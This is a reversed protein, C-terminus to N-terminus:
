LIYLMKLLNLLGEDGGSIGLYINRNSCTSCFGQNYFFPIADFITYLIHRRQDLKAKEIAHEPNQQIHLTLNCFYTKM